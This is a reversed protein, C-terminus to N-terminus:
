RRAGLAEPNVAAPPRRGELADVLNRAAAMGMATRAEVTASGLHPTLVVNPLAVLESHVEPEREFVDLGVAAIEGSRLAEALAREDVVGGRSTNVFVATPKMARFAAADFLHATRPTLSVHVSVIDSEALLLPLDRPEAGTAAEADPKRSRAHYRLPMGFGGARAAVAQGIRGFGVIGLTAGTVERGLMFGPAWEWQVGARILRDGEAVRRGAALILAWTLDATAATLVDPTNTVVVGRATCASVDVNDFGVAYNAVVRLGPGAADLVEGDIRDTLLALIGDLGRAEALLRDRPMPGDGDWATLQCRGELFGMVPDPLWRTLLVRPPRGARM